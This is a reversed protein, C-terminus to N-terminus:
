NKKVRKAARKIGDALADKIAKLADGAAAALAPRMFPRPHVGPHVVAKGTRKGDVFAVKGGFILGAAQDALVKKRRAVLVHARAGFEIWRAKWDTDKGPGVYVEAASGIVNKEAQVHIDDAIHQYGKPRPGIDQERPARAEMEDAVVNGGAKLANTLEKQAIEIPLQQLAEGLKDLGKIQIDLM